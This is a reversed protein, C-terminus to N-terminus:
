PQDVVSSESLLLIIQPSPFAPQKPGVTM